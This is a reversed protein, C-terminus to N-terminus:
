YTVKMFRDPKYRVSVSEGCTPVVGKSAGAFFVTYFCNNDM